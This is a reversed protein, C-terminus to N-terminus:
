AFHKGLPRELERKCGTRVEAGSQDDQPRQRNNKSLSEEPKGPVHSHEGENDNACFKYRRLVSQVSKPMPIRPLNPVARLRIKSLEFARRHLLLAPLRYRSVACLSRGAAFHTLFLPATYAEHHRYRLLVLSSSLARAAM